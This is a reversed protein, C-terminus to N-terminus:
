YIIYISVAYFQRNSKNGNCCNGEKEWVQNPSIFLSELKQKRPVHVKGLYM